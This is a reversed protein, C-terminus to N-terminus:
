VCCASRLCRDAVRRRLRVDPAPWGSLNLLSTKGGGSKGLIIIFEGKKVTLTVGAPPRPRARSARACLSAPTAGGRLAPVGELGLLYTKHVNRVSVIDEDKINRSSDDPGVAERPASRRAAACVPSQTARSAVKRGARGVPDWRARPAARRRRAPRGLPLPGFSKRTATSLSSTAARRTSRCNSPRWPRESVKQSDRSRDGVAHPSRPPRSRV